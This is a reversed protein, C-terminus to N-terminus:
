ENTDMFRSLDIEHSSDNTVKKSRRTTRTLTSTTPANGLKSTVPAVPPPMNRAKNVEQVSPTQSTVMTPNDYNDANWVNGERKVSAFREILSPGTTAAEARPLNQARDPRRLGRVEWTYSSEHQTDTTDCQIQTGDPKTNAHTSASRSELPTSETVIRLPVFPPERIRTSVPPENVSGDAAQRFDSISMNGGFIDLCLKSPAAPITSKKWGYIDRAVKHLLLLQMSSDFPNHEIIYSKACALSCFVMPRLCYVGSTYTQPIRVTYSDFPHCCHFCHLNTRVMWHPNDSCMSVLPHLKYSINKGVDQQLNSSCIVDHSESVDDERFPTATGIITRCKNNSIIVNTRETPLNTSSEVEIDEIPEEM